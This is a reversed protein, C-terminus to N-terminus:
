FGSTGPEIGPERSDTKPPENKRVSVKTKQRMASSEARFKTSVVRVSTACRKQRMLVVWCPTSMRFIHDTCGNDMDLNALDFFRLFFLFEFTRLICTQITSSTGVGLPTMKLM